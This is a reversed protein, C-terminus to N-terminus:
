DQESLNGEAYARTWQLVARRDVNLLMALKRKSVGLEVAAIALVKAAFPVKGRKNQELQLTQWLTQTHRFSIGLELATERQTLGRSHCKEIEDMLKFNDDRRPAAMM